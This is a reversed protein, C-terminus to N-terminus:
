SSAEDMAESGIVGLKCGGDLILLKFQDEDGGVFHTWADRIRAATDMSVPGNMTLVFRDGPKLDLRQLDGLFEIGGSKGM